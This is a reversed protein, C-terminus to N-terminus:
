ATLEPWGASRACMSISGECLRLRQTSYNEAFWRGAQRGRISSGPEHRRMRGDTEEEQNGLAPGASGKLKSRESRKQVM